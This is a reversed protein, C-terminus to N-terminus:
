SESGRRHGANLEAAEWRLRLTLKSFVTDEVAYTIQRGDREVLCAESKALENLAGQVARLSVRLQAAADRASTRGQQALLRLVRDTMRQCVRPDPILLARNAVLSVRGGQRGLRAVGDLAARARHVLVDFVGRHIEAVYAFGYARAFCEGEDLGGTDDLALIALLTQVRGEVRRSQPLRAMDPEVALPLGWRLFRAGRRHSRLLVYAAASGQGEDEAHFALANLAPPVLDATGDRWKCIEPRACEASPAVAAALVEVERGFLGGGLRTSLSSRLQDFQAQDGIRVAELLLTVEHAPGNAASAPDAGAFVAEWALWAQWPATLIPRLAEIVRLGLHAQRNYRRARVLVLGALFEAEAIGETRAMLSSRRGLELGAQTDGAELALLARIAQATVLASAYAAKSARGTWQEFDPPTPQGCFLARLTTVIAADIAGQEDCVLQGLLDSWRALGPGDFALFSILALDRVAFSAARRVSTDEAVFTRLDAEAPLGAAGPFALWVQTRVAYGWARQLPGNAADLDSM